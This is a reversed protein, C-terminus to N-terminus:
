SANEVSPEICSAWRRMTAKIAVTQTIAAAPSRQDRLDHIAAAAIATPRTM